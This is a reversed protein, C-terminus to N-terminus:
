FRSYKALANWVYHAFCWVARHLPLREENRFTKWVQKVSNYKNRSVSKEVVRYRVLDEIVGIAIFGKKLLALWLVFDDYYTDTMKLRGTQSTDIMVTSTTIATNKLLDHYRMQPPVGILRGVRRGDASIRRYATYSVAANKAKMTELQIRLKEPLWLDDSDLFAIYRGRAEDIATQRARAPGANDQRILRVRSDDRMFESVIESSHDRSGDDVILMEWLEFTQELVSRITEGIFDACDFCPTVISVSPRRSM